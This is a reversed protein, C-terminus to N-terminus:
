NEDTGIYSIRFDVKQCKKSYQSMAIIMKKNIHAPTLYEAREATDLIVLVVSVKPVEKVPPEM